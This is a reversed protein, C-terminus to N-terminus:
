LISADQLFIQSIASAQVGRVRAGTAFLYDCFYAIVIPTQDLLLAEIRGAAERQVDLIPLPSTPQSLRTTIPM